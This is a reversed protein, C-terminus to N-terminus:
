KEGDEKKYEVEEGEVKKYEVEGGKKHEEEGYLEEYKVEEEVDWGGRKTKRMRMRVKRWRWKGEKEMNQGTCIYTWPWPMHTRPLIRLARSSIIVM